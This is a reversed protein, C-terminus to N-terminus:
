PHRFAAAGKGRTRAATLLKGELDLGEFSGVPMLGGVRVLRGPPAILPRTRAGPSLDMEWLARIRPARASPSVRMSPRSSPSSTTRVAAAIRAKPAPTSRKPSPRQLTTPWLARASGASTTSQPLEPVPTRSIMPAAARKAMVAVKVPSPESRRRGIALTASGRVWIPAIQRERPPPRSGSDIRPPLRLCM